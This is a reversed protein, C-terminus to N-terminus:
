GKRDTHEHHKINTYYTTKTRQGNLSPESIQQEHLTISSTQVALLQPTRDTTQEDPEM